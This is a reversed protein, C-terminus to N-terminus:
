PIGDLSAVDAAAYTQNGIVIDETPEASWNFDHVITQKQGLILNELTHCLLERLSHINVNPKLLLYAVLSSFLTREVFNFGFYVLLM